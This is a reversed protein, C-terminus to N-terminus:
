DPSSPRRVIIEISAAKKGAKHRLYFVQIFTGPLKANEYAYLRVEVNRMRGKQAALTMDDKTLKRVRWGAKRMLGRFRGTFEKASLATRLRFTEM